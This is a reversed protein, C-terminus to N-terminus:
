ITLGGFYVDIQTTSMNGAADYVKASIKKIGRDVSSTDWVYTYPATTLNAKVNGNVLIQVKVVGVNDTANATITMNNGSFSSGSVPSIIQVSPPTIDSFTNYTATSSGVRAGNAKDTAIATFVYGAEPASSPSTISLTVTKSSTPALTVSNASFSKGFGSPAIAVLNFTSSNTCAPTDNNTVTVNYSLKIGPKGTQSSPMIAIAPARQLCPLLPSNLDVQVTVGSSNHSIQKIAIHNLHDIFTLGDSLTREPSKSPTVDIAMTRGNNDVHIWAGNTMYTLASDYGIPQRYELYYKEGTDPKNIVLAQYGPTTSSEIPAISYTGNSTVQQVRSTPIWKFRAKHPANFQPPASDNAYGMPGVTDYYEGSSCQSYIDISLTGCLLAGSHQAGLNHGLEHYYVSQLTLFDGGIWARSPFGGVTGLGAWSCQVSSPLVYIKRAFSSLNVGAAKAANDAATAWANYDCSVRGQYPLTYWGVAIGAFSTQNFSNEKYYNNASNTDTFLLGAVQAPTYPQSTDDTFNVM